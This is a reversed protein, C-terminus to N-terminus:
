SIISVCLLVYQYIMAGSHPPQGTVSMGVGLGFVTQIAINYLLQTCYSTQLVQYFKLRKLVKRIQLVKYFPAPAHTHVDCSLASTAAVRVQTKWRQIRNNHIIMIIIVVIVAAAAAAAAAAVVVVVVVVVVVAVVDVVIVITLIITSILTNNSNTTNHEYINYLM